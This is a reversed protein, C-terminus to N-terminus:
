GIEFAKTGTKMTYIRLCKGHLKGSPNKPGSEILDLSNLIESVDKRVSTYFKLMEVFKDLIFKYHNKLWCDESTSTQGKQEEQIQAVKQELAM